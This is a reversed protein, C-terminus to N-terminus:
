YGRVSGMVGVRCDGGWAGDRGGRMVGEYSGGGPVM